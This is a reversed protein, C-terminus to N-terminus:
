LQETKQQWVQKRLWKTNGEVAIIRNTIFYNRLNPPPYLAKQYFCELNWLFHHRIIRFTSSLNPTIIKNEYPNDKVLGM